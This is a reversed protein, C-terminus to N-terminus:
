GLARHSTNASKARRSTRQRIVVPINVIIKERRSSSSPRPRSSSTSIFPGVWVSYQRSASMFHATRRFLLCFHCLDAPLLSIMLSIVYATELCLVCVNGILEMSVQHEASVSRTKREPQRLCRNGQVQELVLSFARVWLDERKKNFFIMELFVNVIRLVWDTQSTNTPFVPKQGRLSWVLSSVPQAVVQRPRPGCVCVCVCVCVCIFKGSPANQMSIIDAVKQM